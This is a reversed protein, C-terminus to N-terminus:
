SLFLCFDLSFLLIKVMLLTSIIVILKLFLSFTHVTRKTLFYTLPRQTLETHQTPSCTGYSQCHGAQTRTQVTARQQMGEEKERQGQMGTKDENHRDFLASFAWFILFFKIKASIFVITYLRDLLRFNIKRVPWM